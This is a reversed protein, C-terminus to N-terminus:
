LKNIYTYISFIIKSFLTDLIYNFVYRFIIKNPSNFYNRLANLNM